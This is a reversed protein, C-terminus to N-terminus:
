LAEWNAIMGDDAFISNRDDDRLEMLASSRASISDSIWKQIQNRIWFDNYSRSLLIQDSINLHRQVEDEIALLADLKRCDPCKESRSPPTPSEWLSVAEKLPADLLKYDIDIALPKPVFPMSLTKKTYYKWPDRVVSDHAAAWYFLGAKSVEGLMLGFEAFLSYGICQIRYVELMPDKGDKPQATKFDITVITKDSAEYIDDPEGYLVVGSDLQYKFKRWDRPFEVRGVLNCFPAFEEPLRGNKKLLDAVIAMQAQEMNNFIAGGFHDFPPHFNQMLLYWYWRPCYSYIRILGLRKPTIALNTTQKSMPRWFDDGIPSEYHLSHFTYHEIAKGNAPRWAHRCLQSPFLLHLKAAADSSSFLM